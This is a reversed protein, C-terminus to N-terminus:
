NTDLTDSYTIATCMKLSMKLLWDEIAIDITDLDVIIHM